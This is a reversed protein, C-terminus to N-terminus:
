NKPLFAPGIKSILQNQRVVGEDVKKQLADFREFEDKVGKLRMAVDLKEDQARVVAQRLNDLQKTKDQRERDLSANQQELEKKHEELQKVAAAVAASEQRAKELKDQALQSEYEAKLKKVEAQEASVEAAKAALEAQEYRTASAFYQGVIGVLAGVASAATLWFSTTRYIPRVAAEAEGKLKLATFHTVDAETYRTPVPDPEAM